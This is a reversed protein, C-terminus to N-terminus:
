PSASKDAEGPEIYEFAQQELLNGGDDVVSVQWTGTWSPLMNKSSWTRWRNSGVEFRVEAMLQGNYEWRHSIAHGALGTLETFYFVRQVTTPVRELRSVPELAKIETTIISRTVGIEDAKLPQVPIFFSFLLLVRWVM